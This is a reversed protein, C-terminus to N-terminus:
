SAKIEEYTEGPFPKQLRRAIETTILHSQISLIRPWMDGILEDKIQKISALSRELEHTPAELLESETYTLQKCM